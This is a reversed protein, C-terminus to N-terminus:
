PSTTRRSNKEIELLCYAMQAQLRLAQARQRGMVVGFIAGGIAGPTVLSSTAYVMLTAAYGFLCGTLIGGAIGGVLAFRAQRHMRDASMKLETPDYTTM